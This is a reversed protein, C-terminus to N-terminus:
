GEERETRLKFNWKIEDGNSRPTFDETQREKGRRGTGKRCEIALKNAVETTDVSILPFASVFRFHHHFNGNEIQLRFTRFMTTSQIPTSLIPPPAKKKDSFM